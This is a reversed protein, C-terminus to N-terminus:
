YLHYFDCSLQSINVCSNSRLAALVALVITTNIVVPDASEADSTALLAIFPEMEYSNINENLSIRAFLTHLPALHERPALMSAREWRARATEIEAFAFAVHGILLYIVYDADHLRPHLRRLRVLNMVHEACLCPEGALLANVAAVLEGFWCVWFSLLPGFTASMNTLSFAASSRSPREALRLRLVAFALSLLPRPLPSPPLSEQSLLELSAHLLTPSSNQSFAALLACHLHLSLTTPTM